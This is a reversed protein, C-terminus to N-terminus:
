LGLREVRGRYRRELEVVTRFLEEGLAAPAQAVVGQGPTELEPFWRPSLLPKAQRQLHLTFPRPLGEPWPPIATYALLVLPPRVALVHGLHPLGPERPRESTPFLVEVYAGEVIRATM